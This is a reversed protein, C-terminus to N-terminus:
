LSGAACRCWGPRAPCGRALGGRLPVLWPSRLLLSRARRAAAGVVALPAVIVSGAAVRVLALPAVGLSGAACRCWGPRASCCHGLELELRDCRVADRVREVLGLAIAQEVIRCLGLADAAVHERDIRVILIRQARQDEREGILEARAARRARRALRAVV